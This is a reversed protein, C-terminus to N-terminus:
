REGRIIPPIDRPTPLRAVQRRTRTAQPERCDTGDALGTAAGAAARTNGKARAKTSSVEPGGGESVMTLKVAPVGRTM